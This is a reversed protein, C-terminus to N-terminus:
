MKHVLSLSDPHLHVLYVSTKGGCVEKGQASGTIEKYVGLVPVEVAPESDLAKINVLSAFGPQGDGVASGTSELKAM